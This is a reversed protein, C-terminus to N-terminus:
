RLNEQKKRRYDYYYLFGTFVILLIAVIIKHPDAPEHEVPTKIWKNRTPDLPDYRLQITDNEYLKWGDYGSFRGKYRQNNVYFSYKFDM